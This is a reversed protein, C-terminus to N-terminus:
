RGMTVSLTRFFVNKKVGERIQTTNKDTSTDANTDTNRDRNTDTYTDTNTDTNTIGFRNKILHALARMVGGFLQGM